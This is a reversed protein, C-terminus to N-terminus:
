LSLSAGVARLWLASVKGQSRLVSSHNRHADVRDCVKARLARFRAHAEHKLVGEPAVQKEKGPRAM